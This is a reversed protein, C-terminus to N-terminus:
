NLARHISYIFRYFNEFSYKLDYSFGFDRVRERHRIPNSIVAEAKDFLSHDVGSYFLDEFLVRDKDFIKIKSNILFGSGYSIARLTRDHLCQMHPAVDIIGFQSNFQHRGDVVRDFERFQYNKYRDREKLAEWGSGYIHVPFDKLQVVADQSVINRYCNDSISHIYHYLEFSSSLSLEESISGIVEENIHEDICDHLEILDGSKYNKILSDAISNLVSPMLKGFKDAWEARSVDLDKYNKPFVFYDGAKEFQDQSSRIFNPQNLTLAPFVKKFNRNAYDTWEAIPYTHLVYRSDSLHNDPMHCPHDGHLSIVPVKLHDWLLSGDNLKVASGIGQWVIVAHIIYKDHLHIIENFLNEDLEVRFCRAGFDAFHESIQDNFFTFPDNGGKSWNVLVINM